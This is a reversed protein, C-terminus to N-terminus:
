QHTGNTCPESVRSFYPDGKYLEKLVEFGIVKVQLSSLLSHKRSLADAVGNQAGSKHKITFNFAQLFEVWHAHRSNLKKKNNIFKLAEYDSYLVFPNPLLYQSWHDLAQCIAYFEKDYTSYKQRSDSLKERFYAILKGEQSFVVGIGVISADCEVEFLKEFNPLSLIPTETVKKKILEFSKQAENTWKFTGEKLCETMPVVISSFGKIFRWYFSALGHFSRIDHLTRPTPWNLISEMKSPDMKIVDKLVVYGLFMLSDTFFNCKKLNVYLKKDRLTHFVQRLHELHQEDTKSYVLIDDFYVVMFRDIFPRFVHKMLRMFTSLANSLGFPMVLAM